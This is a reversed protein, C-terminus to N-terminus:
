KGGGLLLSIFADTKISGDEITVRKLLDDVENEKMKEGMTCMVSKIESIPIRGNIEFLSLARKLEDPKFKWEGQKEEFLRKGKDFRITDDPETITKIATDLDKESPCLSMSRLILKFEQKSIVGLENSDFLRWTSIFDTM